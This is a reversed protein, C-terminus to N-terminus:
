FDVATVQGGRTVVRRMLAMEDGQQGQVPRAVTIVFWAGDPLRTVSFRNAADCSATKVFANFEPPPPAPTRRRAEASPIAASNASGYLTMMRRITWEGEPMVVVSSGSCTYAVGRSRFLVRGDIRNTGPVASWTYDNARFAGPPTPREPPPPPPPPPLEPPLPPPPAPYPACAGAALTLAALAATVLHRMARCGLRM